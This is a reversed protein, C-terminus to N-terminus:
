AGRFDTTGLFAFVQIQMIRGVLVFLGFAVQKDISLISPRMFTNRKAEQRESLPHPKVLLQSTSKHVWSYVRLSTSFLM